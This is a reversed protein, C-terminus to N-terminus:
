YNDKKANRMNNKQLVFQFPFLNMSFAPMIKKATTDPEIKHNFDIKIFILPYLSYNVINQPM